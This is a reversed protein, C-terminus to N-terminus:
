FLTSRLFCLHGKLEREMISGFEMNSVLLSQNIEKDAGVLCAAVSRLKERRGGGSSRAWALGAKEGGVLSWLRRPSEM